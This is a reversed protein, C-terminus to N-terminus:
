GTEHTLYIMGFQACTWQNTSERVNIIGKQRKRKTGRKRYNALRGGITITKMSITNTTLRM